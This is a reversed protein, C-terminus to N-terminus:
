LLASQVLEEPLYEEKSRLKAQSLSHRVFPLLQKVLFEATQRGLHRDFVAWAMWQIGEKWPPPFEGHIFQDECLSNSALQTGDYRSIGAVNRVLFSHAGQPVVRTVQDESPSLLVQSLAQTSLPLIRLIHRM